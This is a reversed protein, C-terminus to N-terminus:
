DRDYNAEIKVENLYGYSLELFKNLTAKSNFVGNKDYSDGLLICGETDKPYNGNHILIYRSRPVLNNYLLPLSRKFRPSNHWVVNYAGIPIRRDRGSETTDGGAPELTYGQMIVKDKDMLFFKGITGDPINRFRTINLIM